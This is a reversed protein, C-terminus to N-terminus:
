PQGVVHTSGSHALPQAGEVGSVQSHNASPSPCGLLSLYVAEIEAVEREINGFNDVVSRYAQGGLRERLGQDSWLRLLAAVLAEPSGPPVVIGNEGDRVVELIGGVGSAVVPLGAAMAELLANPMGERLSPFVFIDFERLLLPVDRREGLFTVNSQIGLEWVRRELETRQGGEGVVVFQAHPFRDLVAPVIEILQDYGKDPHLHGVTGIVPSGPLSGAVRGRVSPVCVANHVRTIKTPVTGEAIAQLRVADSVAIVHDSCRDSVFMGLRYLSRKLGRYSHLYRRSTVVRDAGMLRAAVSGVVDSATLYTAVVNPRTQRLYRLLPVVAWIMRVSSSAHSLPGSVKIGSSEAADILAGRRSLCFITTDWGKRQLGQAVRLVHGEAGGLDLSNIVYVIRPAISDSKTSPPAVPV